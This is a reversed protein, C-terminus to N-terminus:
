TKSQTLQNFKGRAAMRGVTSLFANGLLVTTYYTYNPNAEYRPDNKIRKMFQQHGSKTRGVLCGASATGINSPSSDYGSHQNIGFLGTETRDGRRLYDKNLDRYVTLPKNQVLAEHASPSGARHTGVRWARHQGAAIRAAGKSSLPDQTYHEGPETTADWPGFLKPKGGEFSVVLRLDNFVNPADENLTGDENVGELYIINTMGPARALYFDNQIMLGITRGLWGPDLELHILMKEKTALLALATEKTLTKGSGHGAFDCFLGYGCISIPGWSGDAPPDIFGQRGLLYQIERALPRNNTIQDMSLEANADIVAELGGTTVEIREGVFPPVLTLPANVAHEIGAMEGWASFLEGALQEVEQRPKPRGDGSRPFVLYFVDGSAGGNRPSEPIDLARAAAISAEGLHDKSGIDAFIAGVHKRNRLNVIIGLDGSRADTSHKRPLVFYPITEADVYRRPDEEARSPDFLTTTSVYFGPVPDNPGQKVPKGNRGTVIGWWNGDHGANALHDLGKSTDEHYARPSGDADITMESVFFFANDGEMGFLQKSLLKGRQVRRRVVGPPAAVEPSLEVPLAPLVPPTTPVIEPLTPQEPGLPGTTISSEIPARVGFLSYDVSINGSVGPSHNTKREGHPYHEVANLSNYYLGILEDSRRRLIDAATEGIFRGIQTAVLFSPNASFAASGLLKLLNASVQPLSKEGILDELRIGLNRTPQNSKIVLMMWDIQDPIADSCHVAFGTDGFTLVHGDRVRPITTFIQSRLTQDIAQELILRRESEKDTEVFRDLDPLGTQDTSVFSAIKIHASDEGFLGLIAKRTRNDFIRLRNLRLVFM